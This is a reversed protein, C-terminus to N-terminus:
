RNEAIPTWRRSFWSARPFGPMTWGVCRSVRRFDSSRHFDCMNTRGREASKITASDHVALTGFRNFSRAYKLDCATPCKERVFRTERVAAPFTRASERRQQYYLDDVTKLAACMTFWAILTHSYHLMRLLRVENFHVARFCSPQSTIIQQVLKERPSPIRERGRPVCIDTRACPLTSANRSSCQGICRLCLYIHANFSIRRSTFGINAERM